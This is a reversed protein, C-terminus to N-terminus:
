PPDPWGLPSSDPASLEGSAENFVKLSQILARRQSAGMRALVTTIESRRLGVVEDVIRQGEETLRLVTERRDSPNVERSVLGASILRDAMRVATSPNVGLREALTVLKTEGQGVVMLMRFQPLTVRDEAAALSRAAVTVLLRSAALMASTVAELDDGTPEDDAHEAMPVTEVRDGVADRCAYTSIM